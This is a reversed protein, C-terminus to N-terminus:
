ALCFIRRFEYRCRARVRGLALTVVEIGESRLREVANGPEDPLVVITEIGKERLRPIVQMNSNHPGIFAPYHIVSLVNM